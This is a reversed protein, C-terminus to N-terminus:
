MVGCGENWTHVTIQCVHIYMYMYNYICTHILGSTYIVHIYLNTGWILYMYMYYICQLLTLYISGGERGGVCPSAHTPLPPHPDHSTPQAATRPQPPLRGGGGGGPHLGAQLPPPDRLPPGEREAMAPSVPGGQCLGPEVSAGGVLLLCTTLKYAYNCIIYIYM